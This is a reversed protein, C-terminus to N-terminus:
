GKVTGDNKGQGAFEGELEVGGWDGAKGDVQGVFRLTGEMELGGVDFRVQDGPELGAALMESGRGSVSASGFGLPTRSRSSGSGPTRPTSTSASLRASSPTVPRSAGAPRITLTSPRRAVPKRATQPVSALPTNQDEIPSQVLTANDSYSSAHSSLSSPPRAPTNTPYPKARPTLTPLSSGGLSMRGPTRTTM